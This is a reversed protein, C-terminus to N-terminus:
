NPRWRRRGTAPKSQSDKAIIQVSLDQRRELGQGPRRKMEGIVFTDAEGFAALPGTRPTVHGIKITTSEAGQGSDGAARGAGRPRRARTVVRRGSGGGAPSIRDFATM